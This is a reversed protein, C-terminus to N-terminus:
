EINNIRRLMKIVTQYCANEFFYDDDYYDFLQKKLNEVLVAFEDTSYDSESEGNYQLYQSIYEDLYTKKLDEIEGDIAARDEDSCENQFLYFIILREKVLGEAKQKLFVTWDTGDAIGLYLAALKDNVKGESDAFRSVIDNAYGNYVEAVNGEPYSKVVADELLKIWIAQELLENQENTFLFDEYKEALTEGKYSSLKEETIEGKDSIVKRIFDDNAEPVEYDKVYDIYVEFYATKGQLAPEQYYEPFYCEAVKIQLGNNTESKECLTAFEVKLSGYSVDKGGINLTFGETDKVGIERGIIKSAFGEGFREDAAALDIREYSFSETKGESTRKYSLYVIQESTVKGDKIKVFKPHQSLKTGILNYEFGAVFSGSGITLEYSDANSFNSMGSLSVPNGSDDLYYGRYYISVIDGASVTHDDYIKEGDAVQTKYENLINLMEIKGILECPASYGLKFTVNKYASEPLTIYDSMDSERYNVPKKDTEMLYGEGESGESGGETDSIDGDDKGGDDETCSSFAFVSFLLLFCLLLKLKM